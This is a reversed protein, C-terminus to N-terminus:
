DGGSCHRVVAQIVGGLHAADVGHLFDRDQLLCQVQLSLQKDGLADAMQMIMPSYPAGASVWLARGHTTIYVRGSMHEIYSRGKENAKLSQVLPQVVGCTEDGLQWDTCITRVLDFASLELSEGITREVSPCHKEIHQRASSYPVDVQCHVCTISESNLRTRDTKPFMYHKTQVPVCPKCYFEGADCVPHLLVRSCKTCAYDSPLRLRFHVRPDFNTFKAM